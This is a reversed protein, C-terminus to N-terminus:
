SGVQNSLTKIGCSPCFNQLGKGCNMKLVLHLAMFEEKMDASIMICRIYPHKNEIFQNLILNTACDHGLCLIHVKLDKEVVADFIVSEFHKLEQSSQITIPSNMKGNRLLQINALLSFNSPNAHQTAVRAAPTLLSNNNNM